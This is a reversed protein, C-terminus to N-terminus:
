WGSSRWKAQIARASMTAIGESQSDNQMAATATVYVTAFLAGASAIFLAAYFLTLRFSASRLIRGLTSTPRASSM